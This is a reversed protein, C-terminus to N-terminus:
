KLGEHADARTAYDTGTQDLGRLTDLYLDFVAASNAEQDPNELQKEYANFARRLEKVDFGNGKAEIFLEKLDQQVDAKAEELRQWRQFISKIHTNSINM